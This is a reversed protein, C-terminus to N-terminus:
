KTKGEDGVKKNLLRKYSKEARRDWTYKQHGNKKVITQLLTSINIM